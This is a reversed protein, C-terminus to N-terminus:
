NSITFSVQGETNIQPEVEVFNEEPAVKGPPGVQFVSCVSCKYQLKQRLMHKLSLAGLTLDCQIYNICVYMSPLKVLTCSKFTKLGTM